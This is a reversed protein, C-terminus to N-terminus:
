RSRRRDNKRYYESKNEYMKQEASKVLDDMIFEPKMCIDVGIAVHYGAAEVAEQFTEIDKKVQEESKNRGLAIFEDGGVRYTDKVGFINQMVTGVYQLMRDGAEHGKENNLEHLGNVDVYVCFVSKACLDDQSNLHIEYSNRNKLGTLQDTEALTRVKEELQFRVVKVNLMYTSAIMGILGFVVANTIDSSRTIPNKFAFAMAIYIVVSLFILVIIRYPRDILLLPVTLLLAIYTSSLENPSAVTGLVTGFLLVTIIFLHVLCSSFRSNGRPCKLSCVFLLVAPISFSVYIMRMEALSSVFMSVVAMIVLFVTTIASFVILMGRNSDAIEEQVKMFENRQLGAYLLLNKIRNKDM